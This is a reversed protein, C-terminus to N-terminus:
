SPVIKSRVKFVSLDPCPVKNRRAVMKIIDEAEKIRGQQALWRPSEPVLRSQIFCIITIQHLVSITPHIMFVIKRNYFFEFLLDRVLVNDLKSFEPKIHM